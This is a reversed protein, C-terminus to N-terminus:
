KLDLLGSNKLKPNFRINEQLGRAKLVELIKAEVRRAINKLLKRSFKM